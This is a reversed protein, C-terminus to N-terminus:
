CKDLKQLEKELNDYASFYDAMEIKKQTKKLLPELDHGRYAYQGLETSILLMKRGDLGFAAEELLQLFNKLQADEIEQKSSVTEEQGDMEKTLDQKLKEVKGKDSSVHAKVPEGLASSEELIKLIREYEQIMADHHEKIYSIDERKGAMELEKALESLTVAGISMMSSKTGHVSITYNTWDEDEYLKQINEINERGSERHEKLILIYNKENGCYMLGKQVDLDGIALEKKQEPVKHMRIPKAADADKALVHRKLVRILVASEVPKSIFDDFGEKIFMERAGAIANATLAIVPVTQFYLDQKKRILHLTEVGDMGPMMHDMFILDYEKTDVMQLAEKGSLAFSVKINYEALLGELVRLNMKNDDVALVHLNAFELDDPTKSLNEVYISGDKKDRSNLISVFSLIFFPKYIRNVEKNRVKMDDYHDIIVSVSTQRALIDFYQPDELYEVVSIFVHTFNERKQRRKLEALNRCVHCKIDLAEVIHTINDTYADRIASFAFREMDIYVVANVEEKNEVCALPSEDVVKQPIVFQVETGKGLESQATFFGGMKYVIAKSIALGLGVGGKSRKRSMDIQTFEEFLLEINEESMGIGTDKVNVILNIGYEEKRYGIRIRVCGENTFKIANDVVNMIVRRIKQEDGILVSPMGADCDVIIQLNKDGRKAASMSIIDHITSSIYYKEEILEFEGDQLESFDLIDSVVSMLNKGATQISLLDEQMHEPVDKKLIIESIGSITNVPTRIEHSVNALFDDKVRESHQLAEIMEIMSEKNEKQRKVMYHLVYIVLYVVGIVLLNRMNEVTGGFEMSERVLIFYVLMLSYLGAMINLLKPIGYLGILVVLGMFTTLTDFLKEVQFDYIMLCIMCMYTTTYARSQYTRYKGIYLAWPYLLVAVVILQLYPNWAGTYGCYIVFVNYITYIALVILEIQRDRSKLYDNKGM